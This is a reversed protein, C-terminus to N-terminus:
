AAPKVSTIESRATYGLREYMRRATDNDPWVGLTVLDYQDFLRTTIAASLAAGLGRSRYAPHVAIGGLVGVGPSTALHGSRDAGCAVLVGDAWIGYWRRAMPHGPRVTSEPMVLDLLANVDNDSSPLEVVADRGPQAAPPRVTWLLDWHERIVFGDPM